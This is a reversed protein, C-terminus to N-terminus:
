AASRKADYTWKFATATESYHEIFATMTAVLDDTSDFEGRGLLKRTLISFFAGYRIPSARTDPPTTPSL